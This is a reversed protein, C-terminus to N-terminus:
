NYRAPDLAAPSWHNLFEMVKERSYGSGEELYVSNQTHVLNGKGDLILFVPYGFRQPFGFRALIKENRDEKSSNLHYVVYYKKLLSDVGRDRTAFEHFRACWVCWNGGVQIFVHKGEADAQLLKAQIAKEANEGPKYLKFNKMDQSFSGSCILMFLFLFFHKAM